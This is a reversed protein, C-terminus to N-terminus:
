KSLRLGELYMGTVHYGAQWESGKGNRITPNQPDYSYYWGGFEADMLNRKAFALSKDFAPWLDTRGRVVAWHMLARLFECQEWWGKPGRVARNDYDGQTFIGGEEADYAVKMGYDLLRGAIVLYRNPLGKEVAHSLLFAWEFQHGLEIHGGKEAAAPKWEADYFEPLRGEQEQFLRSFIRDAHEQADRLVAPSGTADHLALLAEFLHMMPNQTNESTTRTYGRDTKPRFFGSPERLHEKMQAWTELAAAAYRKDKTIRAAHSLGLITFALGYSDKSRDIVAGEPSVRSFFLDQEKDRFHELLFDAGRKMADLYAPDHTLEYGAGMVFIQRNQSVLTGDESGVPRWQRDLSVAFFGNPRLAAARWHAAESRLEARFWAADLHKATEAPDAAMPRAGAVLIAAMLLKKNVVLGEQGAPM